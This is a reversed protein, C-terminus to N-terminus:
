CQERALIHCYAEGGFGLSTVLIAGHRNSMTQPARSIQLGPMSTDPTSYNLTPPVVTTDITELAFVTSLAGSAGFSHGTFPKTACAPILDLKDAFVASCADYEAKDNAPTATGHLHFAGIDGTTCGARDLADSLATALAHSPDIDRGPPEFSEGFGLFSALITAGRAHAHEESELVFIAAAEGPNIGCRDRDFPAAPTNSVLRLSHFGGVLYPSLAEFGGAVVCEEFGDHIMWFARGLASSSAGCASSVTIPALGPFHYKATKAPTGALIQTLLELPPVHGKRSMRHACSLGHINGSTTGTVLPVSQTMDLNSDAIADSLAMILLQTARDAASDDLSVDLISRPIIGCLIPDPTAGDFLATPVLKHRVHAIADGICARTRGLACVVGAGTIVVAHKSCRLM